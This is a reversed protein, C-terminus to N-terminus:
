AESPNPYAGYYKLIDQSPKKARWEKEFDEYPVGKTLRERKEAERLERTAEEDIRLTKEDYVVRYVNKAQWETILSLKLDEIVLAPERELVDGYGAGGGAAIFVADGEMM